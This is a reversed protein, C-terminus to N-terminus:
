VDARTWILCVPILDPNEKQSMPMGRNRGLYWRAWIALGVGLACLLVGLVGMPVSTNILYSRLELRIQRLASLRLALLILVAVALRVGIEWQWGWPRGLSRKVGIASAFWYVILVLWLGAIVEDFIVM